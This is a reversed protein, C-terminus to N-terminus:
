EGSDLPRTGTTTYSSLAPSVEDTIPQRRLSTGGLPSVTSLSRCSTPSTLFTRALCGTRGSDQNLGLRQGTPRRSPAARVIIFSNRHRMAYLSVNELKREDWGLLEKPDQAGHLVEVTSIRSDKTRGLLEQSRSRNTACCPGIAVVGVVHAVLELVICCPESVSLKSCTM